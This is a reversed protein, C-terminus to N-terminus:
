SKTYEIWAVFPCNALLSDSACVSTQGTQASVYIWGINGISVTVWRALSFYNVNMFACVMIGGIPMSIPLFKEVGAANLTGSTCRRYVAKGNWLKGTQYEKGDPIFEDATSMWTGNFKRWTVQSLLTTGAVIVTTASAYKQWCSWTAGDYYAIDNVSIGTPLGNTPVVTFIYYGPTTPRAEPTLMVKKIVPNTVTRTQTTVSYNAGQANIKVTASGGDVIYDTLTGPATYTQGSSPAGNANAIEAHKGIYQSGSQSIAAVFEEWAAFYFLDTSSIWVAKNETNDVCTYTTGSFFWTSGVSYKKSVDDTATPASVANMNNVTVTNQIAAAIAKNVYKKVVSIIEPERLKM